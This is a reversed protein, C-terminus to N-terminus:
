SLMILYSTRADDHCGAQLQRESTPLSLQNDEDTLAIISCILVCFMKLKRLKLRISWRNGDLGQIEHQSSKQM